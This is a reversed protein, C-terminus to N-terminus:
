RFMAEGLALDYGERRIRADVYLLTAVATTLPLTLVTSFLTAATTVALMAWQLNQVALLAAAVTFVQTVTSAAMTVLLSALLYTGFIPWFRGRSLVWGRQIARLPGLGEVAIACPAFLLRTGLWAALAGGALFLLVVPLMLALDDRALALGVLGLLLATGALAATGVLFALGLAAWFRGAMRRLAEAPTVRRAAVAESVVHMLGMGVVVSTLQSTITGVLSTWGFLQFQDLDPDGFPIVSGGFQRQLVYGLGTGLLQAVLLMLLTLGFMAAPAFRVARFAGGLVDGLGLPRLPVIGTESLPGAAAVGGVGGAVSDPGARLPEPGLQSAYTRQGEWGNSFTM